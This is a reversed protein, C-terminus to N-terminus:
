AQWKEIAQSLLFGRGLLSTLREGDITGHFKEILSSAEPGLLDAPERQNDHLIRALQNYESHTLFESSHGARGVILPATILLIAQTNPSIPNNMMM